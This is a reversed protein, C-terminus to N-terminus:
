HEARRLDLLLRLGLAAGLTGLAAPVSQNVKDTSALRTAGLLAASATAGLALRRTSHHVIDELREARFNVQLKPGPRAGTLRELAEVLRTIRVGLKQSEYFLWKPDLKDRIRATMSRMLYSGAVEFPDLEPDLEAATLQVQAMAKATLTLSAPMPVEHRIAIETMEQLIPGLQIERLSVNRYEAMLSGLEERFHGVDLDSRDSGGSLMLTVDMLFGVDEQWFAMLLLMMNERLDPGIEGVMGFDLFYVKDDYWMLNGPHPDAHFFGDTLIQRYYSELLQRGAEKRIEGEPAESVATGPIEEMVLLRSTSLQDYVGPVDLLSYDELIDGMRRINSAEQEFDLERQLSDSLHEFVASMDIIENFLPRNKTKEAFLEFLALDDMIEKRATPRQVKVVVRDGGELTARHVQAITGAALPDPDISEFVDEWPVGLEEEMVAVVEAESIPAVDDQLDSLEEIFAPPLLDPRTSLIQGLKAFTPGLEELALRLQKAQARQTDTGHHRVFLEEVGHHALVSGVHAARAALRPEGDDAAPKGGAGEAVPGMGDLTNVIIVNCEANHSIRNPVNGLLFKKRGSMGANGVVLTDVKAERAVTLLADVPDDDLVVRAQGRPGALEQAHAVLDRQALHARTVDAQGRETGPDDRPVVVQVLLLDADNHDALSAAWRVAREARESQDTAVMVRHVGPESVTSEREDVM